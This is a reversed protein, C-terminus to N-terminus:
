PTPSPPSATLRLTSALERIFDKHAYLVLFAYFDSISGASPPYRILLEAQDTNTIPDPLILRAEGAPLNLSRVEPNNGYPRLTHETSLKAADDLSLPAGCCATVSFYGFQRGRPDRYGAPSGNPSLSGASDPIWTGPYDLEVRFVNEAYHGTRSQAQSADDKATTALGISSEADGSGTRVLGWALLVLGSAAAVMATAGAVKAWLPGRAWWHRREGYAVAAAEERTAVGLKSLIQSVHYKAGDLSIGLRDAIEENTLGGRILDLVESERATLTDPHRRM